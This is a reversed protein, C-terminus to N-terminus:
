KEEQVLLYEVSLSLLALVQQVQCAQVANVEEIVEQPTQDFGFVKENLYWSELSHLSDEVSELANVMAKRAAELEEETPGSQVLDNLEKQIAAVTKLANEHEVGSDVQVFSCSNSFNASCYYCLSQKERVNMFLRSTPSSGFVAMAVRMISRESGTLPRGLTFLLCLKGQVADVEEKVVVPACPPIALSPAVPKPTRELGVLQKLFMEELLAADCGVACLEIQATQIMQAYVKYLGAPTIRDVEELYGYREVGLEEHDAFFRRQAQRVCRARKNNIESSILEKLKQKEIEVEGPVFAGNHLVPRFAVGLLIEMYFRALEEQQLAYRDKIGTVSVSFVRNKGNVATDLSLDAGYLTALRLSLETMDPCDAYGRELIMPLLANCTATSKESPTIFNISIRARKFKENAMYHARVGPALNKSEM